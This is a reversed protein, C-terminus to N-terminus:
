KIQVLYGLSQLEILLPAYEKPTARKAKAFSDACEGHQGVHMYSQRVWDYGNFRRMASRGIFVAMVDWGKPKVFRVQIPTKDVAIQRGKIANIIPTLDDTSNIYKWDNVSHTQM